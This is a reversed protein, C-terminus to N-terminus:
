YNLMRNMMIGHRDPDPNNCPKSRRRQEAEKKSRGTGRGVVEGQVSVEVEFLKQHDPGTERVTAYRRCPTLRQQCWEQVQTKYDDAGPRHQQTPLM